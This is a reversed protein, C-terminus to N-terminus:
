ENQVTGEERTIVARRGTPGEPQSRFLGECGHDARRETHNM